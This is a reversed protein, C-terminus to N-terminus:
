NADLLSLVASAEIPRSYLFGQGIVCGLARLQSAQAEEEIGEAVVEVGLDTALNLITRVMTASEDTGDLADVFAKDIKLGDVPFRHLYSLSSYGTGFDDVWIRVGSGRLTSMFRQVVEANEVLVTETLELKLSGPALEHQAITAQIEELLPPDAVQRGSLNVAMTLGSDPFREQWAVLQMLAQRIVWRGLPVILGTQEALPIFESPPVLGGRPDRWRALAEFGVLKATDLEVIPQYYLEFEEREVAQRLAVELRLTTIADVRMKADFVVHNDQGRERARTAAAMADSMVESAERYGSQSSTLGISVTAYVAQGDIDFPETTTARIREAIQSGLKLDDVDDLLIAFMDGEYRSLTDGPRICSALRKALVALMKDAAHHGISDALWRFRDVDVVMVTFAYGPADKTHDICGCLRELFPDRRPLSTLGDVRSEELLQERLRFESTDTLSGAMRQGKGEEDRQVVGRTIVWRYAGDSALVRHEHEHYPKLGALHADLDARLGPLDDPHVRSLWEQVDNSLDDLGYGLLERWRRSFHMEGSDLMWEWVGDNSGRVALAFREQVEQLANDMRRHELAHFLTAEVLAGSLDSGQLYGTAGEALRQRRRSARTGATRASDNEVFVLPIDPVRRDRVLDLWTKRDSSQFFLICDFASGAMAEIASEADTAYALRATFDDLEALLGSLTVFQSEHEAIVLLALGEGPENAAAEVPTAYPSRARPQTDGRNM